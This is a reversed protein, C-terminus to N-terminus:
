YYYNIGLLKYIYVYYIRFIDGYFNELKVFSINYFLVLNIKILFMLYM